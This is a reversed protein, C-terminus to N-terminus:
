MPLAPRMVPLNKGQGSRNEQPLVGKQQFVVRLNIDWLAARLKMLMLEVCVCVCICVFVCM